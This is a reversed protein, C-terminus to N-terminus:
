QNEEKSDIANVCIYCEDVGEYYDDCIMCYYIQHM